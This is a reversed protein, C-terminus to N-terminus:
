YPVQIKLESTMSRLELAGIPQFNFVEYKTLNNSLKAGVKDKSRVCNRLPENEKLAGGLGHRCFYLLLKM